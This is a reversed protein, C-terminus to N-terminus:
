FWCFSFSFFVYMRRLCISTFVVVPEGLKKGGKQPIGRSTDGNQFGPFAGRRAFFAPPALGVPALLRARALRPGPSRCGAPSTAPPCSSSTAAEARPAASLRPARPPLSPDTERQSPPFLPRTKGGGRGATQLFGPHFRPAHNLEM